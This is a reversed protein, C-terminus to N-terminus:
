LGYYNAIYDAEQTSFPGQQVPKVPAAPRVTNHSTLVVNNPPLNPSPLTRFIAPVSSITQKPPQASYAAYAQKEWNQYVSNQEIGSCGALATGCLIAVALRQYPRITIANM